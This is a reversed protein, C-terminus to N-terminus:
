ATRRWISVMTFEIFDEGMYNYWVTQSTGIAIAESPIASVPTTMRVWTGGFFDAPSTNTYSFYISGVPYIHDLLSRLKAPTARYYPDPVEEVLTGPFTVDLRDKITATSYWDQLTVTDYASVKQIYLGWTSTGLKVLFAGYNSGEYTIGKLAPDVTTSNSAFQIHVTMPTAELRRTFIFTIPTDANAKVHKLQAMLIYGASGAVGPTSFAYRNGKLMTAGTFEANLAVELTDEKEAVKGISMGRGSSHYDVLTFGTSLEVLYTIPPDFYDSVTLLFDYSDDVSLVVTPRYTTDISYSSGSTLTTYETAGKLKYGISYSKSNKNSLPTITFAYELKVYQGEDDLNGSADCRQATFKSISPVSYATVSVTKTTTATRGRSDTVTVAISVSGSSTITNSTFEDGTYTKNLIKTSYGTIESSYAGSAAIKVNLKSKNQLYVGFKDKVATEAESITVSSISPKVSAPVTLVMTLTTQGLKTSGSYTECTIVCGSSLGSPLDSALSLPITWAYSAGVNSAITSTEGGWTLLLKHTLATSARDITFTVSTGMDAFDKSVSFASTRPIQNLTVTGEAVISPTWSGSLTASINYSGKITVSKTGDSNHKVTHKTTGLKHSSGGSTSIAPNTFEKEDGGVNCTSVNGSSVYLSYTPSNDLWHVCTITSTNNAISQTASWEIRYVRGTISKKITGSLAM